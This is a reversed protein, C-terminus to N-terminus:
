PNCARQYASVVERADEVSSAQYLLSVGTPFRRAVSGTILQERPVSLRLLAVGKERSLEYLRSLNNMEPQGLDLCRVSPVSLYESVHRDINGCSHLGGGGLEALVSADHPAIQDRYMGPSVTIASDVRILIQGRIMFGHQHSWGDSADNLLPWLRRAFGVQAAAIKSLAAGVFEPDEMLDTYLGSGRLMELTDMPGQLDPLVRKVANLLCPYRDLVERYYEYREIVRPCWGKSFDLPDREMAAEFQERSEFGVAWPPNQEVQEITAGFLSAILVTGFNARITCPLDDGVVSRHVISTGWASVLENFLMKEPDDITEAHPYPAFEGIPAPYSTILPLRPVPEWSLARRHLEEIQGERDSDLTGDLRALLHKLRANV